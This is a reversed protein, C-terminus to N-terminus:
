ARRDAETARRLTEKEKESLSALGGARVKDLIADVQERPPGPRPPSPRSSRADSTKSRRSDNIVDFFDTLLHPRRIFFYGALAGGLHAAEGGANRAGMLLSVLAIMVYGYAFTRLRLQIPLLFFEIIANPTIYASAVIVGFVGASAGILPSRSFATSQDFPYLLGPINHLGAAGAMTGLVNLVLYMLAGFIGCVLYFAAYKKFGLAREVIDGFMYLGLMNFILHTWNAHLFQFTLVRWFELHHSDIVYFTSFHGYNFIFRGVSTGQGGHGGGSILQIAMNAIILWTNFSVFRVRHMVRHSRQDTRAYSRDAIGM